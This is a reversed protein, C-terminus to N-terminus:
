GPKETWTVGRISRLTLVAASSLLGYAAGV